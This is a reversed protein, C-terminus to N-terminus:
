SAADIAYAFLNGDVCGTDKGARIHFLPEAKISGVSIQGTWIMDSSTHYSPISPRKCSDEVM